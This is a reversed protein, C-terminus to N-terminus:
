QQEETIPKETGNCFPCTVECGAPAEVAHQLQTGCVPLLIGFRTRVAEHTQQLLSNRVRLPSPPEGGANVAPYLDPCALCADIVRALVTGDKPQPEDELHRRGQVYGMVAAEKVLLREWPTLSDIVAAVAAVRADDRNRLYEIMSPPLAIPDTM